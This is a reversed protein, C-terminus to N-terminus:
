KNSRTRFIMLSLELLTAGPANELTVLKVYMKLNLAISVVPIVLKCSKSAFLAILLSLITEAHFGGASLM